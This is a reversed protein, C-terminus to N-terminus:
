RGTYTRETDKDRAKAREANLQNFIQAEKKAEEARGLARYAQSLYLHPSALKGDVQIAREMAAAAEPYQKLQILARGIGAHADILSADTSLAQRFQVISEEPKGLKFLVEGLMVRAEVLGPEKALAAELQAKAEELRSLNNLQAGLHYHALASEPFRQLTEQALRLAPEYELNRYYAQILLFRPEPNTPDLKITSQLVAIADVYYRQQFYQLGLLTLLRPSDSRIEAAARLHRIAPEARGEEALLTGLLVEAEYFNPQLELARQLETQAKSPDKLAVYARGLNYHAEALDPQLRLTKELFPLAQQHLGAQGLTVAAALLVDPDQAGALQETVAAADGQNGKAVADRLRMLFEMDSRAKAKWRAAADLEARAAAHNGKRQYARGLLYHLSGNEPRVRVSTELFPIARGLEGLALYCAALKQRTDLVEGAKLSEEFFAIAERRRGADLRIRGLYYLSYADPPQFTLEKSFAQEAERARGLQFLAFGLQYYAGRLQPQISIAARLEGAAETYKQADLYTQAQQLHKALEPPTDQPTACPLFLALSAAVARIGGWIRMHFRRTERLLGHGM